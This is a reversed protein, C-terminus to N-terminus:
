RLTHLCCDEQGCQGPNEPSHGSDTWVSWTWSSSITLLFINEEATHISSFSNANTVGELDRELKHYQELGDTMLFGTFDKYYEKPHDSHRTKQYEYIIIKPVPSLEGTLHVWM